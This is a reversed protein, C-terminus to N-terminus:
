KPRGFSFETTDSVSQQKNCEIPIGLVGRFDEGAGHTENESKTDSDIVWTKKNKTPRINVNDSDSSIQLVIMKQSVLIYTKQIILTDAYFESFFEESLLEHHRM